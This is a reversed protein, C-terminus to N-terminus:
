ARTSPGAFFPRAGFILRPSSRLWKSRRLSICLVPSELIMAFNASARELVEGMAAVSRSTFLVDAIDNAGITIVALSIAAGGDVQAALGAIQGRAILSTTTAGSQSWNFAFRRDRTSSGSALIPDGFNLGRAATLIEVWNRATARDPAYFRYEDSISDGIVGIGDILDSQTDSHLLAPRSTCSLITASRALPPFPGTALRRKGVLRPSRDAIPLTHVGHCGWVRESLRNRLIMLATSAFAAPANKNPM